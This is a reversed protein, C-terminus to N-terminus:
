SLLIFKRKLSQYLAIKMKKKKKAFIFEDIKYLYFFQNCDDDGSGLLTYRNSWDLMWLFSSFYVVRAWDLGPKSTGQWMNKNM